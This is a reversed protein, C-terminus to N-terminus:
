QCLTLPSYLLFFSLCPDCGAIVGHTDGPSNYLLSGQEVPRYESTGGYQWNAKGSLVLYFEAPPHAHLPYAEHPDLYMLGATYGRVDFQSNLDCISVRTGADPLKSPTRWRLAGIESLLVVRRGLETGTAERMMASRAGPDAATVMAPASEMEKRFGEIMKEDSHGRALVSMKAAIELIVARTADEVGGNDKLM